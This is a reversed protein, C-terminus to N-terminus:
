KVGPNKKAVLIEDTLAVGDLIFTIALEAIKEARDNRLDLTTAIHTNLAARAAPDKAVEKLRDKIAPLNNFIEPVMALEDIYGFGERPEFKGDALAEDTQHIFAIVITVARLLENEEKM